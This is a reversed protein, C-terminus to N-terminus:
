SAVYEAYPIARPWVQDRVERYQALLGPDFEQAFGGSGGDPKFLSLVLRNNDFLWSDEAPFAIDRARHRPLYRIDEGAEINHPDLAMEWRVYDTHPESVVRVRQVNVGRATVETMFSLWDGRWAFDDPEGHLWKRFPIYEDGVRYVDRLELHFARASSRFMKQFQQFSFREM